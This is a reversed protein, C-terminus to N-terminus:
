FLIGSSECPIRDEISLIPFKNYRISEEISLAGVVVKGLKKAERIINLHGEHIIDTTFCTYVKKM